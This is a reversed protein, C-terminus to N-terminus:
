LHEHHLIALDQPKAFIGFMKKREKALERRLRNLDDVLMSDGQIVALKGGSFASVLTEFTSIKRMEAVRRAWALWEDHFFNRYVFDLFWGIIDGDHAGMPVSFRPEGEAVVHVHPQSEKLLPGLAQLDYDMRLYRSTGGNKLFDDLSDTTYLAQVNAYIIERKEWFVTLFLALNSEVQFDLPSGASSCVGALWTQDSEAASRFPAKMGSPFRLEGRPGSKHMGSLANTLAPTFM